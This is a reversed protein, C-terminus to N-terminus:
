SLDELHQQFSTEGKKEPHLLDVPLSPPLMFVFGRGWCPLQQWSTPFISGLDLGLSDLVCEYKGSNYSQCYVRLPVPQGWWVQPSSPTLVPKAIYNGILAIWDRTVAHSRLFQSISNRIWDTGCWRTLCLDRRQVRGDGESAVSSINHGNIIYGLLCDISTDLRLPEKEM